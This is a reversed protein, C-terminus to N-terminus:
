VAQALNQMRYGLRTVQTYLNGVSVAGGSVGTLQIQGQKFVLPMHWNCRWQRLDGLPSGWKAQGWNFQGWITPANPPGAISLSDLVEGTENTFSVNISTAPQIAVAVSSEIIANEAGDSNDPLLTTLMQWTLPIGNETYSASISPLYDSQWLKADIGAAATVFSHPVQSAAMLSSPFSHPGSWKDLTLHYWFEINEVANEVVGGATTNTSCSIRYVDENYAACARSPHVVFLFPLTIGAGNAGIATSIQGSFTIVRVGDPALFFVGNRTAAITNPALTGTSDNMSNVSLNSLAYDGTIQQMTSAGQFVILAQIIGGTVNNLPLGVLATVAVNNAFTLVQNGNSSQLPDLSDSFAVASGVGYYTRGSFQAVCTPVFLLPTENLNGACWLPSTTSGGAVTLTSGANSGTAAASMVLSLGDSAVSVIRTGAPIDGASSQITQGPRWGAQLVNASLNNVTTTTHTNGTHTSNSFGTMDLWGFFIGGTGPFGPHTFIIRGGNVSATAPVWDGTTPQSTPCAGSTVGQVTIFAGGGNDYIYPESKGAFRGSAIFGYSRAGVQLLSKLQAPNAFGAFATRQVAAPRCVWMDKTHPAPILNTLAAMSGPPANTGDILDTIGSPRITVQRSDRLGM